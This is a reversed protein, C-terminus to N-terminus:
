QKEQELKVMLAARVRAAADEQSTHLTGHTENQTKVGWVSGDDNHSVSVSKGGRTIVANIGGDYKTVIVNINSVVLQKTM